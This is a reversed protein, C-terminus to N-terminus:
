RVDPLSYYIYWERQYAGIGIEGGHFSDIGNDIGKYWRLSGDEFLFHGGEPVHDKLSAHSSFPIGLGATWGDSGVSQLLDELIPGRSYKGGLKKRTVWKLGNPCSPPTYNGQLPPQDNGFLVSYGVLGNDICQQLREGHNWRHFKDTPCFLINNRAKGASKDLKFLYDEFFQSMTESVWCFDFSNRIPDYGNSPFFNDNAAAYTSIAIGWQRMNTACLVKRAQRRVKNLAPMLIAMLLAIISIVVLLEVLTFGQKRKAKMILRGKLKTKLRGM